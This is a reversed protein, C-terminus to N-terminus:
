DNEDDKKSGVVEPSIPEKSSDKSKEAEVEELFNDYTTVIYANKGLGFIGKVSLATSAIYGFFYGVQKFTAKKNGKQVTADAFRNISLVATTTSLVALGANLFAKLVYDKRMLAGQKKEIFGYDQNQQKKAGM